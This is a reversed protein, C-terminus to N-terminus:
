ACERCDVLLLGREICVSGERKSFLLSFFSVAKLLVLPDGDIPIFRADIGQIKFSSQLGRLQAADVAGEKARYLWVSDVDKPALNALATFSGGVLIADVAIGAQKSHALATDLADLLDGRGPWSRGVIRLHGYSVVYPSSNFPTSAWEPSFFAPLGVECAADFYGAWQEYVDPSM